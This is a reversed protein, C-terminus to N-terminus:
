LLELNSPLSYAAPELRDRHSAEPKARCLCAGTGPARRSDGRHHVVDAWLRLMGPNKPIWDLDPRPFLLEVLPGSVTWVM